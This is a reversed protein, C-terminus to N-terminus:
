IVPAHLASCVLLPQCIRNKDKFLENECKTIDIWFVYQSLEKFRPYWIERSIRRASFFLNQATRRPFFMQKWFRKIFCDKYFDSLCQNTMTFLWVFLIVFFVLNCMLLTEYSSWCCINCLRKFKWVYLQWFTDKTKGCYKDSKLSILEIDIKFFISVKFALNNESYFLM